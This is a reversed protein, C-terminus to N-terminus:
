AAPPLAATVDRLPKWTDNPVPCDVSEAVGMGDLAVGHVNLLPALAYKASFQMEHDLLYIAAPPPSIV